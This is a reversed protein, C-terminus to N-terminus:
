INVDSSDILYILSAKSLNGVLVHASTTRGDHHTETM